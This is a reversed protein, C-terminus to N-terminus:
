WPSPAIIKIPAGLILGELLTSCALQASAVARGPVFPGGVVSVSIVQKTGNSNFAMMGDGTLEGQRAAVTVEATSPGDGCNVEVVVAIEVPSVLTARQRISITPPDDDALAVSWTGLMLAALLSLSTRRSGNRLM